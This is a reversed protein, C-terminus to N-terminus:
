QSSSAFIQNMREGEGRGMKGKKIVCALAPAVLEYSV